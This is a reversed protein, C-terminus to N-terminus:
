NRLQFPILVKSLCESYHTSSGDHTHNRPNHPYLAYVGSLTAEAVLAQTVIYPNINGMRVFLLTTSTQFSELHTVPLIMELMHLRFSLEM